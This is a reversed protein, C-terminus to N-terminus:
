KQRVSSINSSSLCTHHIISCIAQRTLQTPLARGRPIRDSLQDSSLWCGRLGLGIAVSDQPDDGVKSGGTFELVILGDGRRRFEFDGTLVGEIATRNRECARERAFSLEVAGVTGEPVADASIRMVECSRVRVEGDAGIHRFAHKGEQEMLVRAIESAAM